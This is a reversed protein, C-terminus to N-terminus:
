SERLSTLPKSSRSSSRPYHNSDEVFNGDGRASTKHRELTTGLALLCLFHNQAASRGRPQNTEFAIVDKMVDQLIIQNSPTQENHYRLAHGLHRMQIEVMHKMAALYSDNDSPSKPNVKTLEDMVKFYEATRTVALWSTASPDTNFSPTGRYLQKMNRIKAESEAATTQDDFPEPFHGKSLVIWLEDLRDYIEKDMFRGMMADEHPCRSAFVKVFRSGKSLFEWGSCKKETDQARQLLKYAVELAEATAENTHRTNAFYASYVVAPPMGFRIWQNATDEDSILRYNSGRTDRFPSPTKAAITGESLGKLVRQAVTIRSGSFQGVSNLDNTETMESQVSSLQVSRLDRLLLELLPFLQVSRLVRLLWDSDFESLPRCSFSFHWSSLVSTSTLRSLCWHLLSREFSHDIADLERTACVSTAVSKIPHSRVNESDRSM